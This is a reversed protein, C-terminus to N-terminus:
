KYVNKDGGIKDGGINDGIIIDGNAKNNSNKNAVKKSIFLGVIAVILTFLAIIEGVSLFM